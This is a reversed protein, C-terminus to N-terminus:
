LWDRSVVRFGPCVKDAYDNHGSVRKIGPLAAIDNRVAQLQAFTFWELPDDAIWGVKRSEIMLFHIVGRNRGICGAGIQKFPRGAFYEGDPMFLGHYGFGRWGREVHWKNITTFVQLARQGTFYGNPVGACHLMVEEVPYGAKGQMIM